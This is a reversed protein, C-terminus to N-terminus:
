PMKRAIKPHIGPLVNAHSLINWNAWIKRRHIFTDFLPLAADLKNCGHHTSAGVRSNDIEVEWNPGIRNSNMGEAGREFM